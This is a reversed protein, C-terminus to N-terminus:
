QAPASRPASPPVLTSPVKVLRGRGEETGARPGKWAQAPPTLSADSGPSPRVLRKESGERLRECLLMTAGVQETRPEADQSSTGHEYYVPKPAELSNAQSQGGWGRGPPVSEPDLPRRSAPM